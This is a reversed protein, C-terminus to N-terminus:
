KGDYGKVIFGPESKYIEYRIKSHNKLYRINDIFDIVAAYTKGDSGRICRGIRQLTKISSKGGGALVLASIQKIDIGIDYIVSGLIVDIEKNIFKEQMAEREELTNKGNLLGFTINNKEFLRALIKGHAINKFLVLPRYGKSIIKKTELMIINNRIDNEVIYENYVEAYNKSYIPISPINIFKIIPQALVKRAILESATINIIQEGLYGNVIIDSGNQRFPTASFGFCRHPDINKFIEKITNTTVSHCEDFLFLKTAKLLEIISQADNGNFNEVENDEDDIIIDKINLARGISWISCVNIKRIDIISNGIYGIKENFVQELMKHIQGLLSLGTVFIITPTNYLAACMAICLSKGSGTTVRIIGKTKGKTAEVMAYQYDRPIMGLKSLTPLIDIPKNIELKNRKDVIDYQINNENLFKVVRDQLGSPFSGKTTLLCVRGNWGHHKHAVTYEYGEQQYSLLQRLKSLMEPNDPLVINCTKNNQITLKNM